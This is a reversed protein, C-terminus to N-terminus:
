QAAKPMQQWMQGDLLNGARKKGVRYMYTSNPLNDMSYPPNNNKFCYSPADNHEFFEIPNDYESVWEGWQKFFFAVGQSECQRQINRVWDPHMPRANKGSEGGVIVWDIGTLDLEGLDELLPECSLYKVKATSEKLDQIRHLSNKDEVTVGIWIGNVFQLCPYYPSKQKLVLGNGFSFRNTIEKLRESRKTLVQFIHGYCSAGGMVNFVKEIYEDSVDEHFLDTMSCVFIRSPEKIKFPENLRDPRLTVKFGNEYGNSKKGSAMNAVNIAQLRKAMMKAYCHKCGASIERCGTVPNWTVDTWEIKTKAM